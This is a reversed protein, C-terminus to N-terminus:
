ETKEKDETKSDSTKKIEDVNKHYFNSVKNGFGKLFKKTKESYEKAKEAVEEMIDEEHYKEQFNKQEDEWKDEPVSKLNELDAQYDSKLTKMEAVREDIKRKQKEAELETKEIKLDMERMKLDAEKLFDDKISM